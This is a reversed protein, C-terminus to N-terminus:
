DPNFNIECRIKNRSNHSEHSQYDETQLSLFYASAEYKIKGQGETDNVTASHILRVSQLRRTRPEFSM